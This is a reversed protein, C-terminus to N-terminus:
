GETHPPAPHPQPHPPLLALPHPPAPPPSPPHAAHPVPGPRPEGPVTCGEPLIRMPYLHELRVDGIPEAREELGGEGRQQTPPEFRPCSSFREASGRHHTGTQQVYAIQAMKSEQRLLFVLLIRATSYKYRVVKRIPATGATPEWAAAPVTHSIDKNNNDFRQKSTCRSSPHNPDSDGGKRARPGQVAPTGCSRSYFPLSLLLAALHPFLSVGRPTVNEVTGANYQMM